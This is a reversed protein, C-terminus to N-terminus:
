CAEGKMLSLQSYFLGPLPRITCALRRRALDAMAPDIEFALYDRGLMICCAPVMGSGTFFDVVTDGPRTLAGIYTTAFYTSDGWKHFRKDAGKSHFRDFVFGGNRTEGKYFWLYPKWGQMVNYKWMRRFAMSYVEALLPLPTLYPMMATEAAYRFESGVQALVMGGPKLIRASIEALWRYDDIQSYVPDCFCLDVSDDPIERGLIKADGTIVTNLRYPGLENM